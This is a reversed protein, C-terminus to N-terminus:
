FRYYDDFVIRTHTAVTDTPRLVSENAMPIIWYEHAPDFLGDVCNRCGDVLSFDLVESRMSRWVGSGMELIKLKTISM